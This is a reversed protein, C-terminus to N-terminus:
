DALYVNDGVSVEGTKKVSAYIGFNSNMEEKLKSFLSADKELTDPDITIMPCRECAIDVQLEASGVTLRKGIWDNENFADDAVSIIFNARFRRKDLGKEWMSELKRLTTDTIILVSAADVALLNETSPNYDIMTLKKKSYTQIEALLEENWGFVRGDPSTVSLAPFNDKSGEGILKAEYGLMNAHHRATFYRNWGEQTEDIFAYCRDGYLGYAEIKSTELSEGVFSKVPYRNIQTIKGVLTM